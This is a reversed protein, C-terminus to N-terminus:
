QKHSIEYYITKYKNGDAIFSITKNDKIIRIEQMRRGESSLSYVSLDEHYETKLRVAMIIPQVVIPQVGFMRKTAQKNVAVRIKGPRFPKGNDGVNGLFAPYEFIDGRNTSDGVITVLIRKSKELPKRDVSVAIANVFDNSTGFTLSKLKVPPNEDLYGSVGQAFNSNILFLRREYDVTIESTDTQFVTLKPNAFGSKVLEDLCRKFDEKHSYRIQSYGEEICHEALNAQIKHVLGIMHGYKTLYGWRNSPKSFAPDRSLETRFSNVTITKNAPSIYQRHYMLAIAPFLGARSPDFASINSNDLLPPSGECGIQIQQKHNFFKQIMPADWGQFLSYAGMFMVMEGRFNNPYGTNWEDQIFPKDKIKGKAINISRFPFRDDLMSVNDIFEHYRKKNYTFYPGYHHNASFDFNCDKFRSYTRLNRFWNTGTIPVKIGIERLYSISSRYFETELDYFFDTGNNIKKIECPVFRGKKELWTQYRDHLIDIEKKFKKRQAIIKPYELLLDNENTIIFLVMSPDDKLAVGTYRNKRKYFNKWYHKIERIHKPSFFLFGKSLKKGKGLNSIFPEWYIIESVAGIFFYYIGRKKLQVLFYDLKDIKDLDFYPGKPYSPNVLNVPCIRVLNIGCKAIYDAMKKADEKEPTAMPGLINAGWFKVRTGEEFVFHGDDSSKLFGHKGSPKELLYSVDLISNKGRLPSLTFPFWNEDDKMYQKVPEIDGRFFRREKIVVKEIWVKEKPMLIVVFKIYSKRIEPRIIPSKAFRRVFQGASNVHLEGNGPIYPIHLTCFKPLRFSLRMISSDGWALSIEKGNTDLAGMLLQLGGKRFQMRINISIIYETYPDVAFVPSRISITQVEKEHPAEILLCRTHRDKLTSIKTRTPNTSIWGSPYSGVKMRSFDFVVEKNKLVDGQCDGVYGPSLCFLLGVLIKLICKGITTQISGM